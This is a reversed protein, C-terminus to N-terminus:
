RAPPADARGNATEGVGAAAAAEGIWASFACCPWTGQGLALPALVAAIAM